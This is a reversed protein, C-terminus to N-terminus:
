AHTPPRRDAWPRAVELQAAVRLLLDERGYAAVLQVGIPLGEESWALPLSIAPQGTVNFPSTFITYRGLREFLENPPVEPAMVGLRPPPAPSTPTVLLDLGQAWPKQAERAWAWAREESALYASATMGRGIEAMVGNLPEVDEPGIPEGLVESWRELDRAVGAAIWPGLEFSGGGPMEAADVDHGLEALLRGADSAAAACQPDAPGLATGTVVGVRLGQVPAGVEESFPRPPPPATYPDGCAPGAIADLVAASDRVSRTVVHEHTLPGWYEGFDPALTGRARSPKLGVLGCFSAPIRISGGMDNAHGVPALGAAVAAASGGSSGGPSHDLNWPNHTPGYARPETTVSMALEPTNTKGVFVFGAARFRRALETDSKAVFGREKLAVMGAHYPDGETHCVADKVLFPVGRFPGDPLEGAACARAKDFLPHIVANLDPNCREIRGIAAEVLEQPKVEGQRVLSAQATADLTSFSDTM